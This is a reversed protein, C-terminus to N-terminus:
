KYFERMKKLREYMDRAEQNDPDLKLAEILEKEVKDYEKNDLLAKANTVRIGSNAKAAMKNAKLIINQIPDTISKENDKRIATIRDCTDMVVKYDKRNYSDLAENYLAIVQEHLINSKLGAADSNEPNLELSSNVEDYAREFYKKDLLAKANNFHRISELQNVFPRLRIEFQKYEENGPFLKLCLRIKDAAAAYDKDTFFKGAAAYHERAQISNVLKSNFEKAEKYDPYLIFVEEMKKLAQDLKRDLYLDEAEKLVGGAKERNEAQIIKADIEDKFSILEDPVRIIKRLEAKAKDAAGEKIYEDARILYFKANILEEREDLYKEKKTSPVDFRIKLSFRHSLNLSHVAVAYDIFFRNVYFGLGMDIESGDWGARVPLPEFLFYELGLHYRLLNQFKVSEADSYNFVDVAGVDALIHLDNKLLSIATGLKINFPYKETESELKLSPGAINQVVFGAQFHSNMRFLAGFDLGVGFDNKTDFIQSVIKFNLGASFKRNLKRAYSLTFCNDSYSYSSGMPFGFSDMKEIDGILVGDIGVGVTNEETFPHVYGIAFFKGTLYLLSYMASFEAYNLFSLGAPNYYLVSSDSSDGVGAKGMGLNRANFGLETSFEGSLGSNKGTTELPNNLGWLGSAWVAFLVLFFFRNKM